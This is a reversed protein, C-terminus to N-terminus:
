LQNIIVTSPIWVLLYTCQLPKPHMQSTYVTELSLDSSVGRMLSYSTHIVYPFLSVGPILSTSSLIYPQMHLYYSAVGNFMTWTIYNRRKEERGGRGSRAEVRGGWAGHLHIVDGSLSLHHFSQGMGVEQLKICDASQLLRDENHSLQHLMAAQQLEQSTSVTAVCCQVLRNIHHCLNGWTCM